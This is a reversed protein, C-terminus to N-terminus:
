HQKEPWVLSYNVSRGEGPERRIVGKKLLDALDRKATERTTKALARYKRNTLAGKFGEPGQRSLKRVVKRQRESLTIDALKLWFREVDEASGISELAQRLAKQMCEFFWILWRTIDGNGRQVEELVEYYRSREALIQSSFSYMRKGNKEDRALAMDTLARAVRGNGDEFPHITVFYLHAKAAKILGDMGNVRNFWRTFGAIESQIRDSPPAEFHVTEYGSAGSVVQMPSSGTRWEGVAIKQLGSYGTPFLSAQWSKLKEATLEEMYNGTADLLMEVLGDAYRDRRGAAARDIGLRGAISSRLSARDVHSNEIAATSFAENELQDAVFELGLSEAKLYLMGQLRRVRGLPQLIDDSRWVM